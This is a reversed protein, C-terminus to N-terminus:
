KIDSKHIFLVGLTNPGCHSSITCGARTFFVEKFPLLEKVQAICDDCIKSDVGSHTVFVMDTEIDDKDSLMASIYEKLVVAFKGRYKKSVDMKGNRVVICPNLKLLNAGFAAIGSCRGGKHLYELDSLVFSADIKKSLARCKDAIVPAGDGNEAMKAASIVMLGGGTSLNQTDVVYVNEFEGAALRANNFSSSMESSLTFHVISYGMDTYKKFFDTCDQLNPAATKPLEGTNKFHEYIKDPNVDVGDTYTNEGLSVKLPLVKINFRELLEPGLDTTSDSTILIKNPM